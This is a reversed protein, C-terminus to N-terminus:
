TAAYNPPTRRLALNAMGGLIGTLIAAWTLAPTWFATLGVAADVSYGGPGTLTLAAAGVGYLLPLEIGNSTALLGHHWHVSVAAVIMVSIVLLGAVPSLFGLAMLAGSVVESGAASAVFLWGPHFGLAEFSRATESRGHGGFWGLLKQCGHAVMLLGLTVRMLLLGADMEQGGDCTASATGAALAMAYAKERAAYGILRCIFM